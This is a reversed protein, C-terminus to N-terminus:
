PQATVTELLGGGPGKGSWRAAELSNRKSLPPASPYRGPGAGPGGTEPGSGDQVDM